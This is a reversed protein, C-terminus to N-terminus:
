FRTFDTGNIYCQYEGVTKFYTRSFYFIPINLDYHYYYNNYNIKVNLNM